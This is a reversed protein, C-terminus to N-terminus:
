CCTAGTYSDFLQNLLDRGNEWTDPNICYCVSTGEINGKILGAEKLAKLHQSVTAQSLPLQEVLDGCICSNAKLIQELIAIRAPHGLAKSIAALQNQRTNYNELKTVGM